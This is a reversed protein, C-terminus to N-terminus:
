SIGLRLSLWAFSAVESATLEHYFFIWAQFMYNGQINAMLIYQKRCPPEKLQDGGLNKLYLIGKYSSVNLSIGPLTQM